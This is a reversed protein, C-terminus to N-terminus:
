IHVDYAHCFDLLKWMESLYDIGVENEFDNM